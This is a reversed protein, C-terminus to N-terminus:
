FHHNTARVILCKGISHHKKGRKEPPQNDIPEFFNNKKMVSSPYGTPIKPFFNVWCKPFHTVWLLNELEM